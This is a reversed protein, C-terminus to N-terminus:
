RSPSSGSDVPGTRMRISRRNRAARGSDRAASAKDRGGARYPVLEFLAESRKWGFGSGISRAAKLAERLLDDRFPGTARKIFSALATVRYGADELKGALAVAKPFFEQPLREAIETLTTSRRLEDDIREVASLARRAARSRTGGTFHPVLRALLEACHDQDQVAAAADVAERRGGPTLYPALEVFIDARRWENIKNEFHEADRLRRRLITGGLFAPWHPALASALRSRSVVPISRAARVAEQIVQERETEPLRPILSVLLTGRSYGDGRVQRAIELISSLLSQPVFPVLHKLASPLESASSIAREMLSEPLSPALAALAKARYYNDLVPSERSRM